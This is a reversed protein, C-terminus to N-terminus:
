EQVAELIQQQTLAIQRQLDVMTDLEDKIDAVKENIYEVDKIVGIITEKTQRCEPELKITIQELFAVKEQIKGYKMVAVTAALGVAVLVGVIIGIIKLAGNKKAM